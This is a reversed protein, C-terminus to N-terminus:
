SASGARPQADLAPLLARWDSVPQHAWVQAADILARDTAAALAERLEETRPPPLRSAAIRAVLLQRLAQAELRAAAAEAEAATCAMGCAVSMGRDTIRPAQLQAQGGEVVSHAQALGARVLASIAEQLAALDCGLVMALLYTDVTDPHAQAMAHLVRDGM